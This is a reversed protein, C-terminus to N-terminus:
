FKVLIKKRRRKGRWLDGYIKREIRRNIASNKLAYYDDRERVESRRMEM